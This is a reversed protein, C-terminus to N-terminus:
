RVVDFAIRRSTARGWGTTADAPSTADAVDVGSLTAVDLVYSGPVPWPVGLADLRSRVVSRESTEVHFLTRPPDISSVTLRGLASVGLDQRAWVIAPADSPFTRGASPTEPAPPLDLLLPELSPADIPTQGNWARTGAHLEGPGSEGREAFAWTSLTSGPVVPVPTTLDTGRREVVFLPRGLVDVSAGVSREYAFSLEARSEVTALRTPVPSTDIMGVDRPEGSRVDPIVRRGHFFCPSPAGSVLVDVQVNERDPPLAEWLHSVEVVAHGDSKAVDIRARGEGSASRTLVDLAYTTGEPVVVGVRLRSEFAPALATSIEGTRVRAEGRSVGMVVWPAAPVPGSAGRVAVDVPLIVDAVRVVGEADTEASTRRGRADVLVVERHAVPAADRGLVELLLRVRAPAEGRRRGQAPDPVVVDDERAGGEADTTACAPLSLTLVLLPVFLHAVQM